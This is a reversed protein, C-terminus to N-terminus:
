SAGAADKGQDVYYELRHRDDTFSRFKPDARLGSRTGSVAVSLCLAAIVTVSCSHKLRINRRM